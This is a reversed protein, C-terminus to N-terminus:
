LVDVKYSLKELRDSSAREGMKISGVSTPAGCWLQKFYKAASIKKHAPWKQSDSSHYVLRLPSLISKFYLFEYISWTM